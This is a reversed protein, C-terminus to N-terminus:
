PYPIFVFIIPYNRCNHAIIITYRYSSVKLDPRKIENALLRYLKILRRVFLVSLFATFSSQLLNRSFSCHCLQEWSHRRTSIEGIRNVVEIFLDMFGAQHLTWLLPYECAPRCHCWAARRPARPCVAPSRWLDFGNGIHTRLSLVADPSQGGGAIPHDGHMPFGLFWDSTLLFLFKRRNWRWRPHFKEITIEQGPSTIGVLLADM